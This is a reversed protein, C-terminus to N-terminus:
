ADGAAAEGGEKKNKKKKNKKKTKLSTALLAKIEEDELVCESKYPQLDIGTVKDTGNPMLLLTFKLHAVFEGEKEHLDPYPQVLDHNVLEVIGLKKRAEELARLTFPLAPFKANIESYLSRSAKMKLQYNRDLARKYVSTQKEDKMIPKGEGTSMVIDVAYVENEKFSFEEARYDPSGRNLVVQNGDM